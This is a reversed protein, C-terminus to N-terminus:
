GSNIAMTSDGVIEMLPYAIYTMGLIVLSEALIRSNQIELLM